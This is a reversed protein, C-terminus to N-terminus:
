PLVIKRGALPVCSLCLDDPQLVAGNLANTLMEAYEKGARDAREKLADVDIRQSNIRDVAYVGRRLIVEAVKAAYAPAIITKLECLVQAHDCVVDVVASLGSTNTSTRLNSRMMPAGAPLRAGTYSVGGHRRVGGSCTGCGGLVQMTHCSTADTHILYAGSRRPLPIEVVETSGNIQHASGTIAFPSYVLTGDSLDTISVQATTDDGAFFRFGSLLLKVNSRPHSVEVLIGGLGTLGTELTQHEDPEGAREAHMMTRPIIRGAFRTLVDSAIIARAQQECQSVLSAVSDEPGLFQGIVTENLGYVELPVVLGEPANCAGSLGTLGQLCDLTM